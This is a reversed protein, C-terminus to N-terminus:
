ATLNFKFSLFLANSANLNDTSIKEKRQVETQM